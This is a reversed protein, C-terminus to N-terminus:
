PIYYIPNPLKYSRESHGGSLDSAQDGLNAVITSGQQELHARTGSKYGVTSCHTGCPLYEPARDTPKLFLGDPEPFGIAHLGAATPQRMPEKRGTVFFVRVGHSKAWNALDRTQNIAPLKNDRIAQHLMEDDNSFGHEAQVPYTTESTDDIDLVIAPNPVGAAVRAKLYASAKGVRENVDHAWPSEPSPRHDGRDGYYHEVQSKAGDLNPPEGDRAGSAMPQAVVAAALGGALLAAGAYRARKGTVVSNM